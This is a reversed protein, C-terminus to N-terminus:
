DEIDLIELDFEWDKKIKKSYPVLETSVCYIEAPDDEVGLGSLLKAKIISNSRFRTQLEKILDSVRM